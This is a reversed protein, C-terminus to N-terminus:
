DLAYVRAAGRQLLCDTFGGTSAGVDLCVLGTVGVGFRDLAAALKLGGRSVFPPRATIEILADDAVAAGPKDIVQGAVRVEGAMVARRAQERSAFLGRAALLQDLRMTALSVAHPEPLGPPSM